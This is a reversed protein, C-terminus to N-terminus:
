VHFRGQVKMGCSISESSNNRSMINKRSKHGLMIALFLEEM